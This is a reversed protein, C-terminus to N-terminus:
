GLAGGNNILFIVPNLGYRLMTSVEQCVCVARLFMLLLPLQATLMTLLIPLAARHATHATYCPSCSATPQPWGVAAHQVTAQTALWSDPEASRLFPPCCVGEPWRQVDGM